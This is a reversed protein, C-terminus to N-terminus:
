YQLFHDHSSILGPTVTKGDLDLNMTNKGSYELLGENSGISLIKDKKIAIAEAITDSTDLTVVNGNTLILTAKQRVMM